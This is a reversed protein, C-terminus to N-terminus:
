WSRKAKIGMAAAAESLWLWLLPAPVTVIINAFFIKMPAPYIGSVIIAITLLGFSGNKILEENKNADVQHTLVNNNSATTAAFMDDDAKKSM